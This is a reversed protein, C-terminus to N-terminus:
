PNIHDKDIYLATNLIISSAPNGDKGSVDRKASLVPSIFDSHAYLLCICTCLLIDANHICISYMHPGSMFHTNYRFNLRTLIQCEYITASVHM